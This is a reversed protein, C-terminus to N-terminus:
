CVPRLNPPLAVDRRGSVPLLEEVHRGILKTAAAEIRTRSGGEKKHVSFYAHGIERM